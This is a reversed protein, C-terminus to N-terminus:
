QSYIINVLIIDRITCDSDTLKISTSLELFRYIFGYKSSLANILLLYAIAFLRKRLNSIILTM